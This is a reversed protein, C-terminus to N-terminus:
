GAEADGCRENLQAKAASLIQLWPKAERKSRAKCLAAKAASPTFWQSEREAAIPQATAAVEFLHPVFIAHDHATRPLARILSGEIGAEERAERAAAAATSEGRAIRGKPFIWRKGNSTRVLLIEVTESSGRVLRYCIAVAQREQSRRLWDIILLVALIIAALLLAVEGSNM